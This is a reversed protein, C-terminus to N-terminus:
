RGEAYRACAVSRARHVALAPYRPPLPVLAANWRPEPVAVRETRLGARYREALVHAYRGRICDFAYVDVRADTRGDGSDNEARTVWRVTRLGARTAISTVDVLEVSGYQRHEVRLPAAPAPAVSGAVLLAAM